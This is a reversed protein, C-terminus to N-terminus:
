YKKLEANNKDKELSKTQVIHFDSLINLDLFITTQQM